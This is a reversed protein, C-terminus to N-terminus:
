PFPSGKKYHGFCVTLFGPKPPFKSFLFYNAINTTITKIICRKCLGREQHPMRSKLCLLPSQCIFLFRLLYSPSYHSFRENLMMGISKWITFIFMIFRRGSQGYPWVPLFRRTYETVWYVLPNRGILCVPCAGFIMSLKLIFITRIVNFYPPLFCM